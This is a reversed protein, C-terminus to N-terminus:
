EGHRWSHSDCDALGTITFNLNKDIDIVSYSNNQPMNGLLMARQTYYHIGNKTSYSADHWHGQICALVKGSEELVARVADANTVFSEEPIAKDYSDLMQHIFVVAPEKGSDLEARLWELEEEPIFSEKWSYNGNDYATGDPRFCADLVLFRVGSKVFSYWSRGNANGPNRTISFFDDKSLLDMDHNGLVHYVPAKSAQLAAEVEKLYQLAGDKDRGVCDKFDGLEIVFDLKCSNFYKVADKLKEISDGYRLAGNEREAYHVDTVVGFRVPKRTTCSVLLEPCALFLIGAASDFLFTRRDM